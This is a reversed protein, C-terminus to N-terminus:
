SLLSFRFVIGRLILDRPSCVILLFPETHQFIAPSSQATIARSWRPKYVVVEYCRFHVSGGSPLPHTIDRERGAMKWCM